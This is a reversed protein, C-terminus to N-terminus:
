RGTNHQMTHMAAVRSARRISSPLIDYLFPVFLVSHLLVFNAERQTSQLIDGHPSAESNVATSWPSAEQFTWMKRMLSHNHLRPLNNWRQGNWMLM